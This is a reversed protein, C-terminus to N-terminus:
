AAQRWEEFSKLRASWEGDLDARVRDAEHVERAKQCKEEWRERFLAFAARKARHLRRRREGHPESEAIPADDVIRWRGGQFAVYGREALRRLVRLATKTHRRAAGAIEVLSGYRMSRLAELIQWGSRDNNWEDHAPNSLEHDSDPVFWRVDQSPGLRCHTPANTQGVRPIMYVNATGARKDFREVLRLAGVAVLKKLHNRATSEM